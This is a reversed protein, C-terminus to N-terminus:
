EEEEGEKGKSFKKALAEFEKPDTFAALNIAMIGEVVEKARKVEKEGCEKVVSSIAHLTAALTFGFGSYMASLASDPLREGPKLVRIKSKPSEEEDDDWSETEKALDALKKSM